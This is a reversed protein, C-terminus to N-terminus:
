RKARNVDDDLIIRMEGTDLKSRDCLAQALAENGKAFVMEAARGALKIRILKILEDKSYGVRTEDSKHRVLGLYGGRSIITAYEPTFRGPEFNDCFFGMFAHGAEHIATIWVHEPSYDRKEGYVYEEFCTIILDRTIKENLEAARGSAVNLVNTLESLSTGATVDALYEIDQDTLLDLSYELGKLEDKKKKLFAIRENRNPWRM